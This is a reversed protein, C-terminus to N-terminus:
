HLRSHQGSEPVPYVDVLLDRIGILSGLALLRGEEDM